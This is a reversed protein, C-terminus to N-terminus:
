APIATISFKGDVRAFTDALHNDNRNNLSFIVNYFFEIGRCSTFASEAMGASVLWGVDIQLGVGTIPVKIIVSCLVLLLKGFSIKL